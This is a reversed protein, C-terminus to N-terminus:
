KIKNKKIYSLFIEALYISLITNSLVKTNCIFDYTGDCVMLSVCMTTNCIFDYTEDCVM